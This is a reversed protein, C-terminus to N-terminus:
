SVVLVFESIPQADVSVVRIGFPDQKLQPTLSAVNSVLSLPAYIVQDISWDSWYLVNGFFAISFPHYIHMESVLRRHSGNTFSSEIKDLNADVWYLTQTAYDLTIGNPWVLDTDHLVERLTGDMSMREIKAVKGWDTWYM